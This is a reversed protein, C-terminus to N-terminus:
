LALDARRLAADTEKRNAVVIHQSRAPLKEPNGLLNLRKLAYFLMAYRVQLATTGGRMGYDKAVIAKQDDSLAPHPRPAGLGGSQM